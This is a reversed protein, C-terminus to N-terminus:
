LDTDACHRSYRHDLVGGDASLAARLCAFRRVGGHGRGDDIRDISRKAITIITFPIILLSVAIAVGAHCAYMPSPM